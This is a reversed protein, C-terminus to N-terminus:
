KKENKAVDIWKVIDAEYQKWFDSFEQPGMYISEFALKAMREKFEASNIAKKYAAVLVDLTEKPTGAPVAAGHQVGSFIPYGQEKTTKVNPYFPSRKEDMVALIRMEGGKVQGLVESANGYYADVHGGLVATRGPTAGDFHVVAFQVGAVQQTKLAAIHDDSCIGSTTVKISRPKAKAAALFEKLTKYPSDGKVAIIGPDKMHM